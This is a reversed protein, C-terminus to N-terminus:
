QGTIRRVLPFYLRYPLCRLIKLVAAFRAPFAIEFRDSDLGRAILGAAESSPIIDPMAFDNRATLPTAVFGPNILQLKIGARDCDPKLAECLNILAAKTPGYATATPLGRYGAVSAVVAIRGRRRERFRPLLAALCHITGFYNVEMLLRATAVRFDDLSMPPHTGAHLVALDLGGLSAEIAAPELAQLVLGSILADLSAAKLSQCIVWDHPQFESSANTTTRNM